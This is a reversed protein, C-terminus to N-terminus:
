DRPSKADDRRRRAFAGRAALSGLGLGLLGAAGLGLTPLKRGPAAQAAPNAPAVPREQAYAMSPAMAIWVAFAIGAAAGAGARVYAWAGVEGFSLEPLLSTVTGTLL